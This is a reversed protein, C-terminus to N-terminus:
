AQSIWAAIRLDPTLARRSIALAVVAVSIAVAGLVLFMVVLQIIVADLPDTGALLLGTMAGPLAILGVVKTREIQPILATRVVDAVLPQLADPGDLGLALMAEVQGRGDRLRACMADAGQVVSPMTNGIVIGAIVVVSVPELDLIQLGFVVALAVAVTAGIATFGIVGIGPVEPARRVVVWASIVVMGGVWLWAWLDALSSEFIIVFFVGVALLQVTARAGAWLISKELALRQWRSIALVIVIMTLSAVVQWVGIPGTM